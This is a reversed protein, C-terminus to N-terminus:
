FICNESDIVFFILENKIDIIRITDNKQKM